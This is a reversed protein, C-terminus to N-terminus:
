TNRTQTPQCFGAESRCPPEFNDSESFTFSSDTVPSSALLAESGADTGCICETLRRWFRKRKNQAERIVSGHITKVPSVEACAPFSFVLSTFVHDKKRLCVM